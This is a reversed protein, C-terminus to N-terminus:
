EAGSFIKPKNDDDVEADLAQERQAYQAEQQRMLQMQANAMIDSQSEPDGMLFQSARQQLAQAQAEIM